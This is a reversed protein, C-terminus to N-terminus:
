ADTTGEAQATEGPKLTFDPEPASGGAANATATIAEFAKGTNDAKAEDAKNAAFHFALVMSLLGTLIVGQVLIEFLKIDWLKPDERAMLLMAGALTFIGLTVAQRETPGKLRQSWTIGAAIRQAKALQRLEWRRQRREAWATLAEAITM